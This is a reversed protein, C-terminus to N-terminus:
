AEDEIGHPARSTFAFTHPLSAAKAGFAARDTVYPEDMWWSTEVPAKQLSPDARLAAKEPNIAFENFRTGPKMDGSSLGCSAM